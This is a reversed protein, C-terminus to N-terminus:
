GGRPRATVARELGGLDRTVGAEWGPLAEAVIGLVGAAQGVGFELGVLRLRPLTGLQPLVRRYWDLGDPGGCLALRPEAASVEPELGAVDGDPIYPPNSVLVGVQGLVGAEALPALDQGGLLRVRDELGNLAVNEAALALAQASADTAVVRARPMFHALSVAICGTGTGIEAVLVESSPVRALVAEVLTETDPRPVFARADCHFRLGMFETGGTVYALPERAVRRAVLGQFRALDGPALAQGFRVPLHAPTDGLAHAMLLRADTAGGAIGARALEGAAERLAERVTM